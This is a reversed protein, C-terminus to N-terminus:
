RSREASCQRCEFFLASCCQWAAASSFGHPVATAWFNVTEVERSATDPDAAEAIYVNSGFMLRVPTTVNPAAHRFGTCGGDIRSEMVGARIPNDGLLM